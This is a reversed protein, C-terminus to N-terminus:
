FRPKLNRLQTRKKMLEKRLNSQSFFASILNADVFAESRRLRETDEKIKIRSNAQFNGQKRCYYKGQETKQTRLNM